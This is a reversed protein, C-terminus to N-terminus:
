LRMPYTNKWISGPLHRPASYRFHYRSSPIALPNVACCLVTATIGANVLGHLEANDRFFTDAEDILITPRWLEVGRFLASASANAASLPRRAMRGLITLLNTKGCAKEPASILMLPAYDVVGIFWTSAVWLAAAHAQEADLVIFKQITEAVEDLLQGPDIPEPHPEVENFPLMSADREGGRLGSVEADLTKLQVGMRKAEEKRVRDYELSTLSALRQITEADSQTASETAKSLVESNFDAISHKLLYDDLGVKKDGDPPIRCIRVLAGKETLRAALKVEAQVVNQNTAADSDYCIYVLRGSLNMEDFIPLLAGAFEKATFNEVGGIGMTPLGEKTAHASKKEGETIVLPENGELYKKWQIFPPLYVENMSGAPQTYRQPKTKGALKDFGSLKPELFRMRYFGTPKGDMDFYPIKYAPKSNHPQITLQMLEADEATLGSRTLDALMMQEPSVKM